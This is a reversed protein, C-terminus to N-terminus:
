TETCSKQGLKEGWIQLLFNLKPFCVCLLMYVVDKRTQQTQFSFSFFLGQCRPVLTANVSSGEQEGASCLCNRLDDIGLLAVKDGNHALCVYSSVTIM